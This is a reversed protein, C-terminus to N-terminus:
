EFHREEIAAMPRGDNAITMASAPLKSASTRGIM